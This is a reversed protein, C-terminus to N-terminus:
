VLQEIENGSAHDVDDINTRPGESVVPPRYPAILSYNPLGFASRIDAINVEMHVIDGNLRFRVRRYEDNERAEQTTRQSQIAAHERDIHSLQEITPNSPLNVFDPEDVSRAYITGIYQSASPGPQKDRPVAHIRQVMENIRDTTARHIQPGNRAKEFYVFTELFFNGGSSKLQHNKWALNLVDNMNAENIVIYQSQRTNAGQKVLMLFEDDYQLKLKRKNNSTVNQLRQMVEDVKKTVKCRLSMFSDEHTDYSLETPPEVTTRSEGHPKGVKVSLRVTINRNLPVVVNTQTAM